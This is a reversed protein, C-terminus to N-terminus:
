SEGMEARAIIEDLARQNFGQVSGHRGIILPRQLLTPEDLMMDLLEDESLEREGLRQSQYVKSRRSVAETPSVGARRLVDVLEARTFRQTFFDRRSYAAGRQQLYAEAKRCTTCTPHVYIDIAM